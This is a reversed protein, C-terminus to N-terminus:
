IWAGHLLGWVVFNWGAGHWLGSILFVILINSMIKLVAGRNGGLPIYIYDKLWNSFSIHWRRWFDRVSTALYPTNFNELLDIGLMRAIGRAMDTYGSFDAYIQWTYFFMTIILSFGKYQPLADFVRDVVLGLNDAIVLKKFLGFTFLKVGSTAKAYDFSRLKKLQPLLHGGREIPGATLQPFFCLFLAFIGFHREPKLKGQYVDFLYGIVQLTYFSIGLPLLLKFQPLQIQWHALQLIGNLNFSFFDFYKFFFLASINFLLASLLFRKKHRKSKYISTGAFFNVVTTLIILGLYAPKWSAYFYYGTFLLWVYGNSKKRCNGISLLFLYL